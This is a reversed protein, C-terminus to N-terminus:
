TLFDTLADCLETIDDTTNYVHPSVRLAAGKMSIYIQKSKLHALIKKNSAGVPLRLGVIHAARETSNPLVIGSGELNKDLQATLEACHDHINNVGWELVQSIGGSLM